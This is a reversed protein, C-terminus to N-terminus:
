RRCSDRQHGIRVVQIVLREDLVEYVIRSDGVRAGYTHQEGGLQRGIEVIAGGRARVDVLRGGGVVERLM